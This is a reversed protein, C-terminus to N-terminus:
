CNVIIFNEMLDIKEVEADIVKRIGMLDTLILKGNEMKIEAVNRAILNADAVENKYVTSLCM